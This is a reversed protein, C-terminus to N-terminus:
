RPQCTTARRAVQATRTILPAPFHDLALTVDDEIRGEGAVSSEEDDAVSEAGRGVCIQEAGWREETGGSAPQLMERLYRRARSRPM